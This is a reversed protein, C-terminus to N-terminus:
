CEEFKSDAKSEDICIKTGTNEIYSFYDDVLEYYVYGFKSMGISPVGEFQPFIKNCKHLAESFESIYINFNDFKLKEFQDGDVDFTWRLGMFNLDNFFVSDFLIYIFNFRDIIDPSMLDDIDYNTILNDADLIELMNEYTYDAICVTFNKDKDSNKCVQERIPHDFRKIRFFTNFIFDKMAIKGEEEIKLTEKQEPTAM